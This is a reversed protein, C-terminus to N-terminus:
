AVFDDIPANNVYDPMDAMSLAEGLFADIFADVTEADMTDGTPASSSYDPLDSDALYNGITDDEILVPSDDTDVIAVDADDAGNLIGVTDDDLPEVGMDEISSFNGQGDLIVSGDQIEMTAAVDETVVGLLQGHEDLVAYQLDEPSIQVDEGTIADQLTIYQNGDEDIGITYEGFSQEGALNVRAPEGELEHIEALWNHSAFEEKYEDSFNDWEEAYYTGYVGGRWEFVGNPGVEARAAAFADNFCMSDDPSTAIEIEDLTEPEPIEATDGMGEPAEVQPVERFATIGMAGVVGAIMGLGGMAMKGASSRRSQKETQPADAKAESQNTQGPDIRTDDNYHMTKEEM